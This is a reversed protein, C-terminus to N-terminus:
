NALHRDLPELLKRRPKAAVQGGHKRELRCERAPCHSTPGRRRCNAGGEAFELRPKLFDLFALSPAVLSIKLRGRSRQISRRIRGAPSAGAVRRLHFESFYLGNGPAHLYFARRSNRPGQVSRCPDPPFGNMPPRDPAERAPRRCWAVPTRAQQLAGYRSQARKQRLAHAPIRRADPNRALTAAYASQFLPVPNGRM